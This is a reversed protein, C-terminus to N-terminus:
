AVGDANMLTKTKKNKDSNENNKRKNYRKQSAPMEVQKKLVKIIQESKTFLVDMDSTIDIEQDMLRKVELDHDELVELVVDHYKAPDKRLFMHAHEFIIQRMQIQHAISKRKEIAEAISAELNDQLSHLRRINAKKMRWQRHDLHHMLGNTGIRYADLFVDEINNNNNDYINYLPNNNEIHIKIQNSILRDICAAAGDQEIFIGTQMRIANAPIAQSTLVEWENETFKLKSILIMEVQQSEPNYVLVPTMLLYSQLNKQVLCSLKLKTEYYNQIKANKKAPDDSTTMTTANESSYGMIYYMNSRM